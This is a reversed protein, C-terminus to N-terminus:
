GNIDETQVAADQFLHFNGFIFIHDQGTFAERRSYIKVLEYRFFLYYSRPLQDGFLILVEFNKFLQSILLKLIESYCDRNKWDKESSM